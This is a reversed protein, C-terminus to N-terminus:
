RSSVRDPQRARFIFTTGLVVGSVALSVVPALFVLNDNGHLRGFVASTWGSLFGLGVATAAATSQLRLGSRPLSLAAVVPPFLALQSGYIAFVLDAISFGLRALVEVLVVSVAALAALIIRAGRLEDAATSRSAKRRGLIDENVTHSLAILLTSATSLMAAVLGMLVVFLLVWYFHNESHGITELLGVLSGGAAGTAWIAVVAIIAWTIGASVSSWVLGRTITSPESASTVRQWM